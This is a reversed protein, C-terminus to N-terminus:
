LTRLQWPKEPRKGKDRDGGCGFVTWIQSHSDAGKRVAQLARLVNELADPTHAYDVFVNLSKTNPVIQLRGPVGEFKSLAELSTVPPVGATAAAAIVAV